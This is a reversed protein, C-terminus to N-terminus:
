TTGGDAPVYDEGTIQKYEAATIYKKEVATGLRDKSLGLQYQIAFFEYYGSM